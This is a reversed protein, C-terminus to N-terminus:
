WLHFSVLNNDGSLSHVLQRMLQQVVESTIFYLFNLSIRSISPDSPSYGAPWGFALNQRGAAFFQLVGATFCGMCFRNQKIEHIQTCGWLAFIFGVYKKQRRGGLDVM